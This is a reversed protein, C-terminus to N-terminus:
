EMDRDLQAFKEGKRKLIELLRKNFIRPTDYGYLKLLHELAVIESLVSINKGPVLPIIKLPIKVGLITKTRGELGTRDIDKKEGWKVLNVEMEVRKHLRTARVGFIRSFDIVGIGRIEVHSHFFDIPEKGQGILISGPTRRTIKIVDDAVLRHGRAALDLATESKGIGSKGTFLIGVGYVDVLTGHIYIYPATKMEIYDFIQHVLDCQKIKSILLPTNKSECYRILFDPIKLNDSVIICPFDYSLFLKISKKLRSEKMQYLFSMEQQGFIQIADTNFNRTFGSLVLGPCSLYNTKIEKDIGKIGSIIDLKLQQKKDELLAKVTLKDRRLKM